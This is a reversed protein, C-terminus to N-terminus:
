TIDHYKSDITNNNPLRDQVADVADLFHQLIEALVTFVRVNHITVVSCQDFVEFNLLGEKRSDLHCCTSPSHARALAIFCGFTQM